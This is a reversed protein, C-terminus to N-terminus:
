ASPSKWYRVPPTGNAREADAKQRQARKKLAQADMDRANAIALAMLQPDNHMGGKGDRLNEM